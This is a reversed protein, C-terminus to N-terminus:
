WLVQLDQHELFWKPEYVEIKQTTICKSEFFGGLGCWATAEEKNKADEYRSITWSRYRIESVGLRNRQDGHVSKRRLDMERANATPGYRLCGGYTGRRLDKRQVLM